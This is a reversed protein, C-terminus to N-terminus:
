AGVCAAIAGDLLRRGTEGHREAWATWLPRMAERAAATEAADPEILTVENARLNARAAEDGERSMAAYRPTWERFKAELIARVPEDLSQMAAGNVLMVQHGMTINAMYGTRTIEYARWDNASLASTIAGDITHRELAPIVEASTISVPSGGLLRMMEVQEPNWTRVKLGRLGDLGSVPRNLWINQPPMTWHLGVEIAFRARLVEEVVPAVAPLARDFAEYSTCLFPMSLVNAEPIDGSAFGVAVDGMQVQSTAVARVVDPARYPLEGAAFVRIRLRGGTAEAVDEAFARNLQAPKDNVPFYTFFRWETTAQAAARRNIVFPAALAAALGAGILERRRLVPEQQM